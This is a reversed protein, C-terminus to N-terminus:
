LSNAQEQLIRMAERYKEARRLARDDVKDLRSLDSNHKLDALKVARAIPNPAIHRVYDMYPVAEDLTLLCLAEMVEPPMEAALQEYTIATDEMVDHLLAACATYEDTMQEALHMPHHIYPYGSKDTQGQHAQVAITMARRVLPTYIM